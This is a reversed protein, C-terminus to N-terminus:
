GRAARFPRDNFILDFDRIRAGGLDRRKARAGLVYAVAAAARKEIEENTSV